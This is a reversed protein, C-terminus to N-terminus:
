RAGNVPTGADGDGVTARDPSTFTGNKADRVLWEMAKAVPIEAIGHKKDVWGYADLSARKRAERIEGRAPGDLPMQEIGGVTEGAPYSPASAAGGLRKSEVGIFLVVVGVLVAAVAVVAVVTWAVLRGHLGEPEQQVSEARQPESM